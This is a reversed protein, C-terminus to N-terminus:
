DEQVQQITKLNTLILDHIKDIFKSPDRFGESATIAIVACMASISLDMESPNNSLFFKSFAEKKQIFREYVLDPLDQVRVLREDESMM